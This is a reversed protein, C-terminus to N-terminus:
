MGVKDMVAKLALPAREHHMCQQLFEWSVEERELFKLFSRTANERARKTHCTSPRDSEDELSINFSPHQKYFIRIVQHKYLSLLLLM